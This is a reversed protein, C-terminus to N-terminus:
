TPDSEFTMRSVTWKDLYDWIGDSAVVINKYCKRIPFVQVEPTHSIYPGRFEGKGRWYEKKKMYYDGLTKSPQLRGKIYYAGKTQEVVIDEDHPFQKLLREREQPNGTSLRENLKVFELNDFDDTVVIAQSDGCNAVYIYDNAVVVSLGCTGINRIRRNRLAM